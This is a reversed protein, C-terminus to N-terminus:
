PFDHGFERRGARLIGRCVHHRRSALVTRRATTQVRNLLAYLATGGLCAAAFGPLFETRWFLDNGNLLLIVLYSAVLLGFSLCAFVFLRLDVRFPRTSRSERHIATPVLLLIAALVPLLALVYGWSRDVMFYAEPWKWFGLSNAIHLWLDSVVAGPSFDQRMVSAQYTLGGHGSSVLYRQVNEGIFAAVPILYIGSVYFLRSVRCMEACCHQLSRSRWCLRCRVRM